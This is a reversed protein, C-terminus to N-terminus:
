LVKQWKGNPYEKTRLECDKSKLRTKVAMLCWCLDCQKTLKINHECGMCQALRMRQTRPDVHKTPDFLEQIVQIAEKVMKM